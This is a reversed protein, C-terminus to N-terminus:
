EADALETPLHLMCMARCDDNGLLTEVIASPPQDYNVDYDREGIEPRIPFALREEDPSFRADVGPKNGRADVRVWRGLDALYVTNLAHICFGSEPTDGLTLRQYCLGAPIGSARLLAALLHSKAYCIGERHELVDSARATVRESGIDWSHAVADRVFEYLDRALATEGGSTRPFTRLFEQIRPEHFDIMPGALLYAEHPATLKMRSPLGTTM